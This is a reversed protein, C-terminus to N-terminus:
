RDRQPTTYANPRSPSADSPVFRSPDRMIEDRLAAIETRVVERRGPCHERLWTRAAYEALVVLRPADASFRAAIRDLLPDDAFGPRNEQVWAVVADRERDHLQRFQAIQQDNLERALARGVRTALEDRIGRSVRDRIAPPLHGLGCESLFSQTTSTTM